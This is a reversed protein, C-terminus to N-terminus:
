YRGYPNNISDASYESGHQGYPNSTSDADYPNASLKGLYEDALVNFSVLLSFLIIFINM